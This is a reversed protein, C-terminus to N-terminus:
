AQGQTDTRGVGKFVDALSSYKEDAIRELVRLTQEEAQRRRAHAVLDRKTAPFDMDSLSDAIDATSLPAFDM